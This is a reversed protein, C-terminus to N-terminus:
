SAQAAPAMLALAGIAGLLAKLGTGMADELLEEAKYASTSARPGALACGFQDYWKTALIHRM